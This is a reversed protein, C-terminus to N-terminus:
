ENTYNNRLLYDYYIRNSMEVAEGNFVNKMFNEHESPDIVAFNKDIKQIYENPDNTLSYGWFSRVQMGSSALDELTDQCFLHFTILCWWPFVLYIKYVEGIKSPRKPISLSAIMEDNYHTNWIFSGLICFGCLIRFFFTITINLQLEWNWIM